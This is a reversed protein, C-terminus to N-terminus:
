HKNFWYFVALCLCLNFLINAIAYLHLGQKLMMFTENSFTSFTSLGGCFGALLMFKVPESFFAKHQGLTMVLAFVICAIVNALLTALPLHVKTSPIGQSLGFRLLSGLGGGIFVMLYNM